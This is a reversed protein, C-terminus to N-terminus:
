AATRAVGAMEQAQRILVYMDYHDVIPDAFIPDSLQALLEPHRPHLPNAIDSAM